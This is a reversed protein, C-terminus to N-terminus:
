AAARGSRTLFYHNGVLLAGFAPEDTMGDRALQGADYAHRLTELINPALREGPIMRHLVPGHYVRNDIKVSGQTVTRTEPRSFILDFVDESPTRAVFGTAEIKMELAEKPFLGGLRSAMGQPRSNYIAVCAAVDEVLQFLGCGYPAVTQGKNASKKNNRRGGIWGPLGKFVQELINFLGEISGKSTPSYPKALTLGFHDQALYELWRMAEALASYEGGNDLYFHEPIGGHPCMTLDALSTAVDAQVIGQGRSLLVPTVWLFRSSMDM